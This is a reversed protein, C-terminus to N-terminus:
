IAENNLDKLRYQDAQKYFDIAANLYGAAFDPTAPTNKYQLIFESFSTSLQIKGTEVFSTEFNNIIGVHTNTKQQDAVLLAKATNVIAAYSHYVSDKYRGLQIARKALELKEETEFFLTAVLDIVVGACEGIGIAKIYPQSHGWDIFDEDTLNDVRGLPKLLDYFYTKGKEDYYGLFSQQAAQRNLYDNLILRLADPTRRSPIKIVKDAFRGQGNGLTGGGLLIQTAPLIRKDKARMSMGQFGITAITHQGCANMCGSTKIKISPDFAIQPFSEVVVQELIKSLGTSSAIGLNCTDTGPCATLDTFKDFGIDSLGIARLKNYWTPLVSAEVHRIIANQSISLTMENGSLAEMWDALQRAQDTYFDGLRIKLGIAFLGDKQQFVNQSLWLRYEDAHDTESDLNPYSEPLVAPAVKYKIPLTTDMNELEEVIAAKFQDFGWEKVLFKMRAKMRKAREGNREFIRVVAETLPIIADVPVFDDYLHAHAPQSGLGGGIFVKFGKQVKGDINKTTAIFGMDHMYALATDEDTNSFAIKFKRGMDQSIPNRLFYRFMGDAYPRPDFPEKTDIGSTASATINRVTNGCAERLTIDDKELEAWLEPTRNLDVHHIQIDQRTTIHLRGTSYEDAVECIRRLKKANLFGYPVKIRIMQVGPQRQGYVGRALRLSRFREEDMKGEKFLHIKRELEIIDQEVIQHEIETRFSKM